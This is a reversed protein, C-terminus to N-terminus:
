SIVWDGGRMIPIRQNDRTLGDVDMQDSGIMFDVHLKSVNIGIKDRQEANMQTGGAVVGAPANGLAIHCVANEDLLTDYFVRGIQYIPSQVTVLAIEGFYCSGSDTELINKLAHLGEKAHYEMVRGDKVVMHFDRIITGHYNLPLTATVTGNIKYKHPVYFIEETPINPIYESQDKENIDYGGVWTGNDVLGIELDTGPGHFFLKTLNLRNLAEKKARINNKHDVWAQVPDPADLRVIKIMDEWLKNLAQDPELEPYVKQAWEPCPVCTKVWSVHGDSRAKAFPVKGTLEAREMRIVREPDLGANQDPNPNALSLICVNDRASDGLYNSLWQPYFDLYEEESYQCRLVNASDDFFDTKVYKAGMQYAVKTIERVFLYDRPSANIMLIEGPKLNGGVKLLVQAFNRYIKENM